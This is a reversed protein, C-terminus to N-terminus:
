TTTSPSTGRGRSCRRTPTRTSSTGTSRTSTRPARARSRGTGWWSTRGRRPAPSRARRAKCFMNHRIITTATSPIGLSTNRTLQHKIEINYGLTGYILNHEILSNVFEYQGSSGGFYMGTGTSTITNYRIVWNWASCKTNIGVTQVTNNFNKIDVREVTIHHDSTSGAEAKM